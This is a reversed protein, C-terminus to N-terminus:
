TIHNQFSLCSLVATSSLYVVGTDKELVTRLMLVSSEFSRLFLLLHLNDRELSSQMRSKYRSEVMVSVRARCTLLLHNEGVM